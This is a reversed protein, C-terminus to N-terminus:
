LVNERIFTSTYSILVYKYLVNGILQVRPIKIAIALVGSAITVIASCLLYVANKLLALSTIM